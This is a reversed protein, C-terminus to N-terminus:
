DRWVSDPFDLFRLSFSRNAGRTRGWLYLVSGYILFPFSGLALRPQLCRAGLVFLCMVSVSLLVSGLKIWAQRRKHNGQSSVLDFRAFILPVLKSHEQERRVGHRGPGPSSRACVM